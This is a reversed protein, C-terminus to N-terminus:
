GVLGHRASDLLEALLLWKRMPIIAPKGQALDQFQESHGTAGFM